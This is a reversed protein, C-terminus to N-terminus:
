SSPAFAESVDSLTRLLEGLHPIRRHPRRRSAISRTRASHAM